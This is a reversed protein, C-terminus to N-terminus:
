EDEEKRLWAWASAFVVLIPAAWPQGAAVAMGPGAEVFPDLWAWTAETEAKDLAREAANLNGKVPLYMKQLVANTTVPLGAQMATAYVGGVTEHLETAQLLQGEYIKIKEAAPLTCGAALVLVLLSLRV